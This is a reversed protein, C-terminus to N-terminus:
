ESVVKEEIEVVEDPVFQSVDGYKDSLKLYLKDNVFKIYQRLYNCVAKLRHVEVTNYAKAGRAYGKAMRYFLLVLKLATYIVRALTIDATLTIAISVTLLGTFVCALATAIINKRDQLYEDASKPVDGRASYKGNYLLIAENLEIPRLNIIELIKKAKRKGFRSELEAPPLEKVEEFVKPIMRLMRLRTKVAQDLEVDVQWDCFIGLLLTGTESVRIVLSDFDKKSDIYDADLKGGETGLMMMMAEGVFLLLVTIIGEAILKASVTPWGVDTWIFGILLVPLLLCIFLTLNKGIISAIKKSTINYKKQFGTLKDEAMEIKKLEDM